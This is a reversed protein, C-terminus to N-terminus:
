MRNKPRFVRQCTCNHHLPSRRVACENSVMSVPQCSSQDDSGGHRSTEVVSVVVVASDGFEMAMAAELVTVVVALIEVVSAAVANVIVVLPV